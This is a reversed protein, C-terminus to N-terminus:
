ARAGAGYALRLLEGRSFRGPALPGVDIAPTDGAIEEAAVEGIAPALKFGHGSSGLALYLGEVEEAWGLIPNWDPTYDYAGAFGCLWDADAYSPLRGALASRVTDEYGPDPERRGDDRRALPEEPQYAVVLAVGARDPRLVLNSVADSFTVRAQPRGPPQRVVGVQVRRLSIPLDVGASAALERGWAGAADVVVDAGITGEDTDVGTIRGGKVVLSRAALGLRPVAGARVAAAFWALTMREADAFGGDPEYAAGAVGDLSLLPELEGIEAPQLIQTELGWGTLLDINERLASLRDDGVLLLYGTPVYGADGVGVEERWRKIVEVGRIALRATTENSYHRRVMSFSLGSDGAAPAEREVLTLALGRRALQFAISTGFLGAGVVVVRISDKAVASIMGPTRM